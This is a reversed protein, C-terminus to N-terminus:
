AMVCINVNLWLDTKCCTRPPPPRAKRQYCALFKSVTPGPTPGFLVSNSCLLLFVPNSGTRASYVQSDPETEVLGSLANLWECIHAIEKALNNARVDLGNAVQPNSAYEPHDLLRKSLTIEEILM